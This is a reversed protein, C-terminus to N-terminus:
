LLAGLRRPSSRTRAANAAASSAMRLLIDALLAIVGVLLAVLTMLRVDRDRIHAVEHALVAELEREDMPEVLGTTM